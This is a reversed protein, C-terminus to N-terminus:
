CAAVAGPLLVVGVGVGLVQSSHKVDLSVAPCSALTTDEKPKRFRVARQSFKVAIAGKFVSVVKLVRNLVASGLM